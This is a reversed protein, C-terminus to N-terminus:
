LPSRHMQRSTAWRSRVHVASEVCIAAPILGVTRRGMGLPSTTLPSTASFCDRRPCTARVWAEPATQDQEPWCAATGGDPSSGSQQATTTWGATRGLLGHSGQLTNAESSYAFFHDPFAWGGRNLSQVGKKISANAESPWPSSSGTVPPKM